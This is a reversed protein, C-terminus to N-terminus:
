QKADNRKTPRSNFPITKYLTKLVKTSVKIPKKVVTWEIGETCPPTTLSGSYRYVKSKKFVDNLEQLELRKLPSKEKLIDGCDFSLNDIVQDFVSSTKDDGFTLFFGIVALAGKDSKFM